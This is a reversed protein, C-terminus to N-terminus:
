MTQMELHMKKLADLSHLDPGLAGTQMKGARNQASLHLFHKHATQAKHKSLTVVKYPTSPTHLILPPPVPIQICVVDGPKVGDM